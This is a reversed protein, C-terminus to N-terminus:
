EEIIDKVNEYFNRWDSSEWERTSGGSRKAILSQRGQLLRITQAYTLNLEHAV